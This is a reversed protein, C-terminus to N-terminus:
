PQEAAVLRRVAAGDDCALAQAALEQCAASDLTRLQAKVEPLSPVSVSFEDIGLGLLLPVAEPESALGGCVGVWKGHAHAAKVTMDILQLVAPSLADALGALLPHGRDIALTYQTLDNTGISFFDVHPAFRDAMLAASPVEIMIGLEVPAAGLKHREEELLQRALALEHLSSVMPLMIRLKGSPAAQLLARLQQRLIAPRNLGVRIGREGLFPNEEEPLPLYPLPKDGGIDLTRVIVPKGGMAALIASYAEAQEAESPATARSLYLFESRLLGVGEAGLELGKQADKLGGINAVVELRKGDRTIAPEHACANAAARAAARASRAQELAALEAADPNLQLKGHSADLLVPTGDAVGRIRAEVGALAPIDMTRALIATHSSAGGLLTCIGVVKTRDLNATDSPSLDDAVIIAREPLPREGYAPLGLLLRLVRKGLDRLDAARGALLENKMRALADSQETVAQQWGHPTSAGTRIAAVASDYLAPDDLLARHAGFIEAKRGFGDKIMRTELLQLDARAEIIADDLALLESGSDTAELPYSFTEERVHVLQGVAFGPSASIGNIQRPDTAPPFLLSPEADLLSGGGGASVGEEGLGAALAEALASTAAVADAGRASVVVAEGFKADLGMLAVVSKANARRSGIVLEIQSTFGKAIAVIAAAPRAHIGSPNPLIVAPAEVRSGTATSAATVAALTVQYLPTGAEVESSAYSEIRAVREVNTILVVTQLSRARRSVNDLDFRLLPTGAAVKSGTTVLATFGEGKLKVTDIGVHILVELGEPSRVVVAHRAPHVQIVEGACPSLLTDTLPDIALGDGVLKGAFAPDAVHALPVVLGNFPANIIIKAQEHM